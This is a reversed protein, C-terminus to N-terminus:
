KISFKWKVRDKKVDCQLNLVRLDVQIVEELTKQPRVRGGQREVVIERCKEVWIDNDMREVYWVM